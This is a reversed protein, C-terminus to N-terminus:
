LRLSLQVTQAAALTLPAELLLLLHRCSIVLVRGYRMTLRSASSMVAKVYDLTLRAV